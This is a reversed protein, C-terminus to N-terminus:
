KLIFSWKPAYASSGSVAAWNVRQFNFDM